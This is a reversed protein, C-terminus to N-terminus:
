AQDVPPRTTPTNNRTNEDRRMRRIVRNALRIPCRGARRNGRDQWYGIAKIRGNGVGCQWPRGSM